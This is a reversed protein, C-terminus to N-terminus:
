SIVLLTDGPQLVFDLSPNLLSDQNREIGIVTLNQSSKLEEYPGKFTTGEYKKPLKLASIESGHNHTVLGTIVESVVRNEVSMALFKSTLLTTNVIIDCNARSLYGANNPDRLEACTMISPNLSEIALVTLVTKQDAAPTSDTALVIAYKAHHLNARELIEIESPSGYM